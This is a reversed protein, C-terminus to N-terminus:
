KISSGLCGASCIHFKIKAKCEDYTAYCPVCWHVNLFPTSRISCILLFPVNSCLILASVVGVAPFTGCLLYHVTETRVSVILEWNRLRRVQACVYTLFYIFFCSLGLRLSARTHALVFYRNSSVNQSFAVCRARCLRRRLLPNYVGAYGMPLIRLCHRYPERRAPGMRVRPGSRACTPESQPVVATFYATCSRALCHTHEQVVARGSGRRHHFM